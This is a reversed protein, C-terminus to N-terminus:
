QHISCVHSMCFKCTCPTQQTCLCLCVCPGHSRPLPSVFPGHASIMTGRRWYWVKWGGELCVNPFFLEPSKGPLLLPNQSLCTWGLGAGSDWAPHTCRRPTGPGSDVARKMRWRPQNPRRPGYGNCDNPHLLIENESHVDTWCAEPPKLWEAM